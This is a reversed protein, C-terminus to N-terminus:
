TLEALFWLLSHDAPQISPLRRCVVSSFDVLKRKEREREREREREGESAKEGATVSKERPSPALYSCLRMSSYSTALSRVREDAI